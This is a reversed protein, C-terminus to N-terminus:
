QCSEKKGKNYGNEFQIHNELKEIRQELKNIIEIKKSLRQHLVTVREEFHEKQIVQEATLTQFNSYIGGSIFVFTIIGVLISWHETIFNNASNPM